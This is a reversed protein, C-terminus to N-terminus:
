ANPCRQRMQTSRCKGVPTGCSTFITQNRELSLCKQGRCANATPRAPRALERGFGQVQGGGIRHRFNLDDVQGGLGVADMVIDQARNVPGNGKRQDKFDVVACLVFGGCGVLTRGCSIHSGLRLQPCLGMVRGGGATEASILIKSFHNSGIVMFLCPQSCIVASDPVGFFSLIPTIEGYAPLLTKDNNQRIRQPPRTRYQLHGTVLNTKVAAVASCPSSNHTESPVFSPM